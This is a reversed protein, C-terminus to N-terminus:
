QALTKQYRKVATQEWAKKELVIIEDASKGKLAYKHFVGKLSSIDATPEIVIRNGERKMFVKQNTHLSLERRLKAPISVQGQSTISMFYAM